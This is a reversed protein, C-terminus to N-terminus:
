DKEMLYTFCQTGYFRTRQPNLANLISTFFKQRDDELVVCHACHRDYILDFMTHATPESEQASYYSPKM